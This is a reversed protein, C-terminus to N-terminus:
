RGLLGFIIKMALDALFIHRDRPFYCRETLNFTTLGVDHVWSDFIIVFSKIPNLLFL